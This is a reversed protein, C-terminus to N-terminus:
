KILNLDSLLSMRKDAMDITASINMKEKQFVRHMLFSFLRHVWAVPTLVPCKKAYRYKTSLAYPSPFLFHLRLWGRSKNSIGVYYSQRLVDNAVAREQANGFVGADMVDTLLKNFVPADPEFPQNEMIQPDMGLYDICIKFIHLCLNKFGLETISNWLHQLNIYQMYANYYLSIDLFHRIGAGKVVFHKTLHILLFIFHEEYGFTPIEMGMFNVKIRKELADLNMQGAVDNHRGYADGWLRTHLDLSLADSVFSKVNDASSSKEYTYGLELLIAEAGAYDLPDILLDSDCSVRSFASRYLKALLIGKFVAVEINHAKFADLVTRLAEYSQLQRISLRFAYEKLESLLPEPPVSQGPLMSIGHYIIPLVNHTRSLLYIADWDPEHLDLQTGLAGCLLLNLFNNEQLVNSGFRGNSKKLGVVFIVQHADFGM